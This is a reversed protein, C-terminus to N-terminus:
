SFRIFEGNDKETGTMDTFFSDPISKIAAELGANITEIYHSLASLIEERAKKYDSAAAYDWWEAM